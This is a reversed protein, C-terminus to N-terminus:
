LALIQGTHGLLSNIRFLQWILTRMLNSNSQMFVKESLPRCDGNETVKQGSSPCFKALPALFHVLESCKRLLHVGCTQILNHSLSDTRFM